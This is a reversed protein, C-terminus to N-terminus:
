LVDPVGCWPPIGSCWGVSVPSVSESAITGFRWDRGMRLSARGEACVACCLWNRGGSWDWAALPAWAVSGCGPVLVSPAHVKLGM